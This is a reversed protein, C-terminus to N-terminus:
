YCAHCPSFFCIPAYGLKLDEVVAAVLAVCWRGALQGWVPM